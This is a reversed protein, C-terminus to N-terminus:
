NPYRLLHCTNIGANVLLKKSKIEQINIDLIKMVIFLIQTVKNQVIKMKMFDLLLSIRRFIEHFYFYNLVFYRM